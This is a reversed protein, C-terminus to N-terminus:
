PRRRPAYSEYLIEAEARLLGLEYAVGEARLRKAGRGAALVSLDECAVVVRSVGAAALRESCSAIGSSREGCPELTVYATAGAARAGAAALAREEAPPRGGDGTAGEGVSVGGSVLVCGVAPNEDTLGVQRRALLIARRMWAEDSSTTM